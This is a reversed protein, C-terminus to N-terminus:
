HWGPIIDQWFSHGAKTKNKVSIVICWFICGLSWYAAAVVSPPCNYCLHWYDLKENNLMPWPMLYVLCQWSLVFFFCFCVVNMKKRLNERFCIYFYLGVLIKKGYLNPTTSVSLQKAPLRFLGFFLGILARYTRDIWALSLLIANGYRNGGLM